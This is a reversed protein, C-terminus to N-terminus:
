ALADRGDEVEKWRFLFLPKLGFYFSGLRLKYTYGLYLSVGPETNVEFYSGQFAEKGKKSLIVLLCARPPLIKLVEEKWYLTPKEEFSILTNSRKLARLFDEKSQVNEESLLFNRMLKFSHRYHPFLFRVGVERIYVKVHHDLGGVVQNDIGKEMYLRAYKEIDILKKLTELVSRISFIGKLLLAFAMFFLLKKRELLADKLDIIEFLYDQTIPLRWRYREKFPHAIIKLNEFLLLDGLIEGRENQLKREIGVVVEGTAFFKMHDKDHDTIMVYDIGEEQASKIIDEPKGLSDYSFQSHLHTQFSYVYLDPLRKPFLNFPKVKFRKVPYLEVTLFYLLLFLFLSLFLIM